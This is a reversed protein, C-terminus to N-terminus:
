AIPACLMRCARGSAVDPITRPEPSWSVWRRVRVKAGLRDRSGGALSPHNWVIGPFVPSAVGSPEGEPM